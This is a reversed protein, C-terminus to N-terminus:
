GMQYSSGSPSARHGTERREEDRVARRVEHEVVAFGFAKQFAETGLQGPRLRDEDRARMEVGRLRQRGGVLPRMRGVVKAPELGFEVLHGIGGGARRFEGLAGRSKERLGAERCMRHLAETEVV